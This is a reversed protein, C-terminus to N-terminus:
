FRKLREDIGCFPCSFVYLDNYLESGEAWVTIGEGCSPCKFNAKVSKKEPIEEECSKPKPPIVGVMGCDPCTMKVPKEDNSKSKKLAFIGKCTPCKFHFLGGKLSKEFEEVKAQTKPKKIKKIFNVLIIIIVILILIGVLTLQWGKDFYSNYIAFFFIWLFLVGLIIYPGKTEIWRM